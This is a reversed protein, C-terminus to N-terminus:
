LTGKAYVKDCLKKEIASATAYSKCKITTPNSPMAYLFYRTGHPLRQVVVIEGETGSCTYSFNSTAPRGGLATTVSPFDFSLESMQEFTAYSGNEMFYIQQAEIIKRTLTIGEVMRAKEVAKQYQPLAVAALIGIIVVVVLLEILTFGRKNSNFIIM